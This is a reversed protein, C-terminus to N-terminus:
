RLRAPPPGPPPPTPPPRKGRSKVREVAEHAGSTTRMGVNDLEKGDDKVVFLPSGPTGIANIAGAIREVASDSDDWPAERGNQMANAFDEALSCCENFTTDWDETKHLPLLALAARHIFDARKM